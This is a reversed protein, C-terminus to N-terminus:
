VIEKFVQEVKLQVSERILKNQYLITAQSGGWNVHLYNICIGKELMGVLYIWKDCTSNIFSIVNMGSNNQQRVTQLAYTLKKFNVSKDNLKVM